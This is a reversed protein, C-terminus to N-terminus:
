CIEATNGRMRVFIVGKKKLCMSVVNVVLM